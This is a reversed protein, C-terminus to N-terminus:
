RDGNFAWGLNFHIALFGRFPVFDHVGGHGRSVIQDADFITPGVVDHATRELGLHCTVLCKPFEDELIILPATQYYFRYIIKTTNFRSQM